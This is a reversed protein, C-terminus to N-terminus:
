APTRANLTTSRPSPLPGGSADDARSRTMPAMVLRNRMTHRGIRENLPNM